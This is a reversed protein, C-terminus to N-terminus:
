VFLEVGCLLGGCGARDVEEWLFTFLGRDGLTVTNKARYIAGPSM